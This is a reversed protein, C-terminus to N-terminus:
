AVSSTSQVINLEALVRPIAKKLKFFGRNAHPYFSIDWGRRVQIMTLGAARLQAKLAKIQDSLPGVHPRLMVIQTAGSHQAAYILEQAANLTQGQLSLHANARALADEIAADTFAKAREGIPLSSRAAYSPLAVLGVLNLADFRGDEVRGDEDHIVLLTKADRDPQENPPLPLVDPHDAEGVPPADSALENGQMQFRGGTYKNINSARALYTKDATHLGCVWRWSLTNSAPDGDILHRFFVDAGLRWPLNLTYIWISAFWMRAHNHLYGTELLENVWVDFCELGTQGALAAEYRARLDDNLALLKLDRNLGTVYDRWVSPRAELWGKWYTRWCVEQVFKEAAQLGHTEVAAAVLEEETILRHRVHASLASVNSRDSSGFDYNRTAAYRRGMLPTFARLRALAAKRSPGPITSQPPFLDTHSM